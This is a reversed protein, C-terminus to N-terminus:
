SQRMTAPNVFVVVLLVMWLRTSEMIVHHVNLHAMRMQFSAQQVVQVRHQGMDVLTPVLNVCTVHHRFHVM